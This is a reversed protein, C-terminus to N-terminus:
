VTIRDNRFVLYKDGIEDKVSDIIYRDATFDLLKFDFKSFKINLLIDNGAGVKCYCLPVALQFDLEQKTGPQISRMWLPLYNRESQLQEFSDAVRKISAKLRDRWNSISNPYYVDIKNNSIQYGLRNITLTPDPRTISAGNARFVDLGRQEEATIGDATDIGSQWINNGSDITITTSQASGRELKNPLRNGNPELPDIMEVYIVEYVQTNTGPIVATAKKVDGFQFRKKKHNLGISNIYAAAETTEIGAYVIMSLDAQVGFNPDNPRYISLPTFISTNNIFDKWATRQDAKLFPKTRLNSFVINNPTVVSIKFSKSIASYTLQDKAKVTFIYDRDVTTKERDFTTGGTDYDFSTLGIAGTIPNQYQNVKGVIEGDLNLTLGPPLRGSELEYLVVSDAFSSIAEIRLTSVFNANIDGLNYDTVWNIASEVEGIISITFVRPSYAYEGKPTFKSATVTFKYSETVAPQYPVAGYIESTAPDFSLGPPLKALGGIYFVQGDSYVVNDELAGVVNGLVDLTTYISLRYQNNGLSQVHSIQYRKETAGALRYEFTFWQGVVPVADPNAITVTTAGPINDQNAKRMLTTTIEANIADLTYIVNETDYTDLVLTVYNNARYTGLNSKTLWFPGRLYTLDATFLGNADLLTINDARFYDDSVVFIKYRNKAVTDGDTVTVIFEFNRNLHKPTKSDASFDYFVTDYIFSDYGNTPRYGFDYAVKDYYGTDYAGNGDEPQLALTPQIFGTIRGEKTLTLGPPLQGEGSAIFYSLTQGVATDEDYAEVQFDVFSKDLVFYQGATVVALAGALTVFAPANAGEVTIKFTRDAFGTPTSARICFEYITERSVESPTGVIFNGDIHLGIPLKGSIVKFSLANPLQAILPLPLCVGWSDRDLEPDRNSPSGGINRICTYFKNNYTINNGKTYSTTAVWATASSNNAPKFIRGREQFTGFSYGSRQSWIALAM